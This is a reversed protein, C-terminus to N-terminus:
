TPWIARVATGKGRISEIAFSGGSLEIRERMSGLGFGRRSAEVSLAEELEFGRGNDEVALELATNKEMLTVVVRQAESHKAINNM